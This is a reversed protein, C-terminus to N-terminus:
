KGFCIHGGWRPMRSSALTEIMINHEFWFYSPTGLKSHDLHKFSKEGTYVTCAPGHKNKSATEITKM